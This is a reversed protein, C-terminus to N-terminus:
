RQNKPKIIKPGTGSKKIKNKKHKKNKTNKPSACNFIPSIETSM